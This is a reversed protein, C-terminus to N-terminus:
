WLGGRGASYGPRPRAQPEYFSDDVNGQPSSGTAGGQETFGIVSYADDPEEDPKFAEMISQPDEEGARLGTRLNVRALKIGPPIRFPSAPQDALAEKMFNGFVPAALKGGTNGKGMPTPADYGMFVGVVLDPSYGLFWADKEQNTTGTKGALPRELAKLSRATGRQVVGELISTMQYATHPDVIQVRDDPIEPEEQNLWEDAKCNECVRQDHRWVTHGWRDQIRDILTPRVQHGGNAIACYGAALRLLTTEGAGLSMSLVPLLDDYIGFRRAYETILPMGLDQALRVTMQNRSSEIGFRLTSPGASHEKEYNEPKWIDQGPGQEIEIPADLIISTPKYGNDLAAAYVFPKFSSGPQRKAQIARDFQSMAFSFGGVVALVRGTNPDMAVIGGGVQPIQMLSWVGAVNDPDKPAVFVVDGASLVESVARPTGKKTKAWKVEDLTLEIAEREGVLSGDQQKEPRLGVIAKAAEVKLVVGLRWPQIDHPRPVEDLAKGWDGAIDLKTVPGRWGKTRDFTVLGDMLSKRAIQQLRPDLTTRVSLGGNYLKDEGFRTLLTRRVEEAFYDAAFIHAGTTRLNVGLPKVKAAEAEESSIYGNEEMQGIIWNRRILAQKERRFPHYNNPGKPLAALYAAEEITLDQLEKNFYSLSAAAIGYAGIGFYIENLYLELIKDKSYAREIRVALIAEKVKREMSRESSLLFNKAVQQTITSGGEARRDSGSLKAEVIKFVARAIGQFDVGGHEYFRRDEASLFAAIVRKPITNIPVFIRRERAYEAILAGNHAHIRTMVPPEYKSLSEYDPLDQSTKWLLYGAAASACIFVVVGAAFSWGLLSLM